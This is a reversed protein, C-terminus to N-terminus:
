TSYSPRHGSGEAHKDTTSCQRITSISGEQQQH